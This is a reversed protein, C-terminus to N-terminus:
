RVPLAQLPITEVDELGLQHLLDESLEAEAHQRKPEYGPILAAAEELFIRKNSPTFSAERSLVNQDVFIKQGNLRDAVETLADPEGTLFVRGTSSDNVYDTFEEYNTIDFEGEIYSGPTESVLFKEDMLRTYDMVKDPYDPLYTGLDWPEVVGVIYEERSM